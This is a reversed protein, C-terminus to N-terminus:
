QFAISHRSYRRVAYLKQIRENVVPWVALMEDHDELDQTDIKQLDDLAVVVLTHRNRQDAFKGTLAQDPEVVHVAVTFDDVSIKLRFIHNNSQAIVFYPLDRLRALERRGFHEFVAVVDFAQIHLDCSGQWSKAESWFILLIRFLILGIREVLTQGGLLLLIQFLFKLLLAFLQILCIRLDVASFVVDGGLVLFFFGIKIVNIYTDVRVLDDLLSHLLM